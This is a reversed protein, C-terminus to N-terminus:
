STPEPGLAALHEARLTLTRTVADLADQWAEKHQTDRLREVSPAAEPALKRTALGLIGSFGWPHGRTDRQAARGLAEVVAESLGLPWPAPCNSLMQFGAALEHHKLFEATWQAHEADPLVNLLRAPPEEARSPLGLLARAWPVSRHRIAARSWAEHLETRWTDAVPLAVLQNPTLGLADPWADPHTAAVIEGLLWARRGRGTPSEPSIGDRQMAEDCETPPEIVLARRTRVEGTRASRRTTESLTVCTLARRAMRESLASDPLRALLEAAASRVSKARDDLASELFPEDANTLGTGLSDLFLARDEARETRWSTRLLALASAADRRRLRTLLAIREAFLGEEWTQEVATPDTDTDAPDLETTTDTTPDPSEPLVTRRVYRWEPNHEALWQGRPGALLVALTRLETRSRGANLLAPLLAAPIRYDRRHAAELWEPLLEAIDPDSARRGSAGGHARAALLRSLHRGAPEPLLPRPDEAAPRLPTASAPAPAPAPRLGARRRVAQVAAAELLARGPDAAEPSSPAPTLPPGSLPRRDTGLLATTVLEEWAVAPRPLNATANV